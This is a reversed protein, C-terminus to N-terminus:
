LVAVKRPYSVEELQKEDFVFSSQIHAQETIYPNYSIEKQSNDPGKEEEHKSKSVTEASSFKELCVNKYELQMEKKSEEDISTRGMSSAIADIGNALAHEKEAAESSM